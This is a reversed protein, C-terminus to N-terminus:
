HFWVVNCGFTGDCGYVYPEDEEAPEYNRKDNHYRSYNYGFAIGYFEVIVSHDDFGAYKILLFVLRYKHAYIGYANGLSKHASYEAVTINGYVTGSLPIDVGMSNGIGLSELSIKFGLYSVGSRGGYYM